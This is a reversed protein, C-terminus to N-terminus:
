KKIKSPHFINSDVTSKLPRLVSLWETDALLSGSELLFLRYFADWCRISATGVQCIKEQIRFFLM